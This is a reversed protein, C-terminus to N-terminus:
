WKKGQVHNLVMKWSEYRPKKKSKVGEELSNYFQFGSM